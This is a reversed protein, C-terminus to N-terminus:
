PLEVIPAPRRRVDQVHAGRPDDVKPPQADSAESADILGVVVGTAVEFSGRVVVACNAARVM